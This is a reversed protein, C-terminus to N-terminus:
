RLVWVLAAAILLPTISSTAAKTATESVAGPPASVQNNSSSSPPPVYVQAGTVSQFNPANAYIFSGDKNQGIVNADSFADYTTKGSTGKTSSVATSTSQRAILPIRKPISNVGGIPNTKSGAKDYIIKGSKDRGIAKDLTLAM